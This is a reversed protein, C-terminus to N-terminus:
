FYQFLQPQPADPSSEALPCRLRFQDIRQRSLHDALQNHSGPLYVADFEFEFSAALFHLSRALASLEASGSFLNRIVAVVSTNDAHFTVRRGRWSPAWASCALLVAQLERWDISQAKEADSWGGALWRNRHFAGFGIDSADTSVHLADASATNVISQRGNWKDAFLRWWALDAHFDPGLSVWRDSRSKAAKLTDLMRRLFARGPRVAKCAFALFGILSQLQKVSCRARKTFVTLLFKLKALKDAPLRVVMNVTDIELGLFVIVQRPDFVKDLNVSLGLLRCVRM